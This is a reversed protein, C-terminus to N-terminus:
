HNEGDVVTLFSASSDHKNGSTKKLNDHAELRRANQAVFWANEFGTSM